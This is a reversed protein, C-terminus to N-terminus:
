FVLDAKRLSQYYNSSKNILVLAPGAPFVFLGNRTICNDFRKFDINYFKIKKFIIKSVM